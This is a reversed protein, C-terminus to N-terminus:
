FQIQSTGQAYRVLHPTNDNVPLVTVRAGGGVSHVGDSLQLLVGDELTDSDDHVYLVTMGQHLEQLTFTTVQAGAGGQTTRVLRGHSPPREVQFTLLDAPVDLDCADLTPPTLEKAGGEKVTFNTLLLSPPEDNTPNIIIHFPVPASSFTGDSVRISMQDATPEVGRHESQVYRIFGLTLHTLSFSEIPIGAGSKESGPMPLVNELFGHLPLAELHFTLEQPPSDPDSAGLVGGCLCARSGEDVLLLSKGLTVEPVKNNVPLVTINLDFVPLTGHLPVPPPPADGHCCDDMVGAEGDSIILTVTDFVPGPGIEAGSHVYYVRGQLLDQQSFKDTKVGARQLEGRGPSRALMYALRSDDSDRDTASLFDVTMQVRGGEECSLSTQLGGGLQPPEDNMPRVQVQLVVDMSNQGDTVKLGVEDQRTESDDHIYRLQLGRLDPLRFSGGQLLVGGQLELRGHRATKQVEVRLEEEPSDRDQVLLHEETVFAAGGEEVRLLNTFAEPPLNDVPTVTINFVLGSVTGGHPDSVSFVFQVFLPDPGIDEVPPM